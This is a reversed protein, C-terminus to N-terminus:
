ALGRPRYQLAEAVHPVEIADAGSLDAITRSLKLIRHFARASLQLQRTATQLLGQVSDDMRCIERVEMPSMDANSASDSDRFRALQLQRAAEVRDRAKESSETTESAMLKEYDVRPVEVFMDIRDLLPGSIRKQYRGVLSPACSCEKYPDGYFGCPCPNMAAVLMFNAPFTVTGQARSITVVKDELPQRLVELTNRGFEPLEDLFLVGRHSLTIEGPRPQRGGGVLGAHSITYHPSRFPRQSMLPKNSPLLGSISYIKTVTLAEEPTMGPLIGPLSRALLTKGSGPPGTMLINHGGAAAVEMARKVHEQGKIYAMDFEPPASKSDASLLNGDLAFPQLETDGRLHAVVQGLSEVPYIDIGKILAAEAKDVDPVFVASIGQDRAMAVMPLIGQTHRVSGELSLEGLFVLDSVDVRLQQSSSLIGVAIPLDYAPGEKRLDAPALNVTIRKMPFDCGSNRIAARVRERSEQVMTDPLGVVSFSPLGPSIDAEVEVIAGELGVIACSRAKALM